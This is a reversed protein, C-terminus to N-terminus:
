RSVIIVRIDARIVLTFQDNPFPEEMAGLPVITQIGLSHRQHSFMQTFEAYIGWLLRQCEPYKGSDYRNYLRIIIVYPQGMFVMRESSLAEARLEISYGPAGVQQPEINRDLRIPPISLSGMVASIDDLLRVPSIPQLREGPQGALVVARM